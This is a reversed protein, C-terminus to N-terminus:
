QGKTIPLNLWSSLEQALWDIEPPTLQTNLQFPVIGAWIKIKPYIKTHSAYLTPTIEVKVINQRPATLGRLTRGRISIESQTIRLIEQPGSFADVEFLLQYFGMLMLLIIGFLPFWVGSVWAVFIIGCIIALGVIAICGLGGGTGPLPPILIELMERTKTVQVRSGIPKTAIAQPQLSAIALSRERLNSQELAELAQKASKLRLDVSIETMWKLWDIIHPSLNVLDAFIIRMQLQPLKDPAQGTALYILTAGLAYLDSAPTTQGGFQEPPM